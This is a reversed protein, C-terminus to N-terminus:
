CQDRHLRRQLSPSHVRKWHRGEVRFSDGDCWDTEIFQCNEFRQLNSQAIADTASVLTFLFTVLCLHFNLGYKM